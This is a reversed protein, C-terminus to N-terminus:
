ALEKRRRLRYGSLALGMSGLLVAGPVPVALLDHSFPAFYELKGDSTKTYLDFHVAYGSALGSVDVEFDQYYLPGDAVVSGPGGPHDQSNYLATRKAPDLTFEHEYYYTDYIGHRAIEDPNRDADIPPAGYVMDNVVSITLGDFVFSGLDPAPTELLKPTIAASIYFYGDAGGDGTGNDIKTSDSNVLAYLTFHSQTAFISEEPVSLYTAPDADLQLYPEALAAHEGAFLLCLVLVGIIFTLNTQGQRTRAALM